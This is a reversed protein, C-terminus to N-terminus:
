SGSCARFGPTAGGAGRMSTGQCPPSWRQPCARGRAPECARRPVHKAKRVAKQMILPHPCYAGFGDPPEDTRTQTNVVAVMDPRSMDPTLQRYCVSRCGQPSRSTRRPLGALWLVARPTDRLDGTKGGRPEPRASPSLCTHSVADRGHSPARVLPDSPPSSGTNTRPGTNRFWVPNLAKRFRM